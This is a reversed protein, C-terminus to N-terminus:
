SLLTWKFKTWSSLANPYKQTLYPMNTQENLRALSRRFSSLERAGYLSKNTFMKGARKLFKQLVTCLIAEILLLLWVIELATQSLDASYIKWLSVLNSSGTTRTCNTTKSFSVPASEDWVARSFFWTVKAEYYLLLFMVTEKKATKIEHWPEGARGSAKAKKGSYEAKKWM